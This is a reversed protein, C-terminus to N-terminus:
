YQDENESTFESLEEDLASGKENQTVDVYLNRGNESPLNQITYDVNRGAGRLQVRAYGEPNYVPGNRDIPKEESRHFWWM